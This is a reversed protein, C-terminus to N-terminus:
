SRCVAADKISSCPTSLRVMRPIKPWVRREVVAPYARGSSASRRSATSRNPRATLPQTDCGLCGGGSARHATHAGARSCRVPHGVRIGSRGGGDSLPPWRALWPACTWPVVASRPIRMRRMTRRALHGRASRCASTCAGGNQQPRPDNDRTVDRRSPATVPEPAPAIDCQDPMGRATCPRAAAIPQSV